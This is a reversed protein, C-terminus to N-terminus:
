RYIGRSVCILLHVCKAFNYEKRVSPQVSQENVLPELSLSFVLFKNREEKSMEDYYKKPTKDAINLSKLWKIQTPNLIYAAGDEYYQFRDMNM